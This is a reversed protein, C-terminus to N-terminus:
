GQVACIKRVSEKLPPLEEMAYIEIVDLRSSWGDGDEANIDGLAGIQTELDEIANMTNQKLEAVEKRLQLLADTTYVETMKSDM